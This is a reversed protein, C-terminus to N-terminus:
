DPFGHEQLRARLRQLCRIRTPGISGKPIDLLRSVDDYSPEDPDLFLRYILDRCREDLQLLAHQLAEQTAWSSLLDSVSPITRFLPRDVVEAESLDAQESPQEKVRQRLARWSFRRATTSLWAGVSEPKDIDDIHQTLAVFVEQGVDDVEEPTLGHRVAIFHVLRAYQDVLQRWADADGNRCQAVLAADNAHQKALEHM